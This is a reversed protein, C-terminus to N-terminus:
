TLSSPPDVPPKGFVPDCVVPPSLARIGSYWPPRGAARTRWACASSPLQELLDDAALPQHHGVHARSERGVLRRLLRDLGVGDRDLGVLERELAIAGLLADARARDDFHEVGLLLQEVRLHQQHGRLAVSVDGAELQQVRHANGVGGVEVEVAPREVIREAIVASHGVIPAVPGAFAPM